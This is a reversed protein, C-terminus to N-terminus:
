NRLNLQEFHLGLKQKECPCARGKQLQLIEKQKTPVFPGQFITSSVASGSGLRFTVAEIKSKDAEIAPLLARPPSSPQKSSKYLSYIITEYHHALDLLM